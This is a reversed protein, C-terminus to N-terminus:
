SYKTYEKLRKELGAKVAQLSTEAARNVNEFADPEFGRKTDRRHDYLEEGVVKAWVARLHVGDWLMWRTYRWAKTRVSYGMAFFASSATMTCQNSTGFVVGASANCGGHTGHPGCCRPYQSFSASKSWNAAAAASSAESASGGGGDAGVRAPLLLPVLSTGALPPGGIFPATRSVGALELLTPMIDVAEVLAQTRGGGRYGPAKLLLPVRAVNEFCSQKCWGGHEGLNWGHDGVFAVVTSESLQLAELEGLLRGVLFDMWSVAARYARRKERTYGAAFPVSRNFCGVGVSGNCLNSCLYFAVPPSTPPFTRHAPLDTRATPPQAPAVRPDAPPLPLLPLPLLLLLLLLLLLVVGVV